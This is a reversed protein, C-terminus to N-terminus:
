LIERVEMLAFGLLNEGRWTAAQTSKENGKDLGIGWITDLPSAEVLVKTATQLLFANLNQEQSFKYFNGKKVLEYKHADWINTDFNKVKRGWKKAAAPTECNLIESLTAEDEFLIAKQAMMFHEATRYKKGEAEFESEWWQSLCSSTIKGDASPQHGWFMLFDTTKGLNQEAILWTRNYKM